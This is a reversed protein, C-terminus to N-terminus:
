PALEPTRTKMIKKIQKSTLSLVVIVIALCFSIIRIKWKVNADFTDKVCILNDTKCNPDSTLSHKHQESESHNTIQISLDM